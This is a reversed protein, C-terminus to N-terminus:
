EQLDSSFIVIQYKDVTTDDPELLSRGLILTLPVVGRFSDRIAIKANCRICARAARGM